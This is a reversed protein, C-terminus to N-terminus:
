VWIPKIFISSADMIQDLVGLSESNNPLKSLANVVVYTRSKYVITFEYELFLMMWRTIRRSVHPKNILYVLAM